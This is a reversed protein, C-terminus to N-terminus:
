SNCKFCFNNRSMSSWFSQILKNTEHNRKDIRYFLEESYALKKNLVEDISEHLKVPKLKKNIDNLHLYPVIGEKLQGIINKSEILIPKTIYLNKFEAKTIWFRTNVKYPLTKFINLRTKYPINININRKFLQYRNM